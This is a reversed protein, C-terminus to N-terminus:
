SADERRARALDGPSNVNMLFLDPDGFRRLGGEVYEVGDLTGVFERVSRVGRDLASRVAPLVERDYAACLPHTRGGHRPVVACAGPEELRELLYGVLETPLFPLDGAAVFVPRYRAAALGAEMGALPGLRGVRKDPVLRVGELPSTNRGVLIVDECSASLAAHVRRILPVGGVELTLKDRGMRRSGGGALIM